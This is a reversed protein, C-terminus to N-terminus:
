RREIFKKCLHQNESAVTWQHKEFYTNKFIKCCECSFMQAPGQLGEKVSCRCHSSRFKPSLLDKPQIQYKNSVTASSRKSRVGKYVPTLSWFCGSSSKQLSLHELFNQLNWLSAGTNFNRWCLHKGTSNVLRLFVWNSTQSRSSRFGTREGSSGTKLLKCKQNM